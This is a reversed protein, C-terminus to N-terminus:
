AHRHGAALRQVADAVVTPAQAQPYHGVGDVMVVDAGLREGIWAAEAGPDKWDVDDAGMVVVAPADVKDLRAEAPAHSTRTTRVFARWHGARRLNAAVAARHEDYGEHKEGPTWQPYYALYAAPGWPRTLMLRFLLTAFRNM